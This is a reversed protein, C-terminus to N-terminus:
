RGRPNMQLAEEFAALASDSDGAELQRFGEETKQQWTTAELVATASTAPMGDLSPSKSEPVATGGWATSTVMFLIALIANLAMSKKIKYSM